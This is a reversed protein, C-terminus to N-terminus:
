LQKEFIGDLKGEVSTLRERVQQLQQVIIKTMTLASESTFNKGNGDTSSEIEENSVDCIIKRDPFVDESGSSNRTKIKLKSPM